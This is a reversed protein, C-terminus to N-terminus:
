NVQHLHVDRQPFPISIGAADLEEKIKRTVGFYVDWYHEPKCWPRVVFNVSSDALESVFVDAKPDQLVHPHNDVVSRLVGEAKGIDDTYSIGATLDVRRTPNGNVNTIVGGTVVSNPVIIKQNDLSNLTTTFIGIEEVIGLKGGAEILDGLGFPKFILIMVGAAFNSLSGQLALGVALGAAGLVAVFSATQIGVRSLAAIVAFALVALKVMNALFRVLAEDTKSARLTKRTVSAGWGAIIRGAILIVFAYVIPLGFQTVLDVIKEPTLESIKEMM